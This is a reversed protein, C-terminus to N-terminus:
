FDGCQAMWTCARCWLLAPVTQQASLAPFCWFRGHLSRLLAQSQLITNPLHQGLIQSFKSKQNCVISGNLLVVVGFVFSDHHVLAETNSDSHTWQFRQWQLHRQPSSFRVSTCTVGDSRQWKGAGVAIWAHPPYLHIITSTSWHQKLWDRNELGKFDRLLDRHFWLKEHQCVRLM